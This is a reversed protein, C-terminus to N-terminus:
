ALGLLFVLMITHRVQFVLWFNGQQKDEVALVGKYRYLLGQAQMLTMMWQDLQSASLIHPQLTALLCALQETAEAKRACAKTGHQSLMCLSHVYKTHIEAAQIEAVMCM